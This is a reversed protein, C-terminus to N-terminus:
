VGMTAPSSMSSRFKMRCAPIGVAQRELVEKQRKKERREKGKKITFNLIRYM